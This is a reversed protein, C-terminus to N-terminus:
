ELEFFDSVKERGGTLHLLKREKEKGRERKRKKKEDKFRRTLRKM